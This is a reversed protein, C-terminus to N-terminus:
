FGNLVQKLKVVFHEKVQQPRRILVGMRFLDLTVHFDASEKLENWADLMDKSWRIDDLVFITNENSFPLLLRVYNKLADGQHHGDIFILDFDEARHAELFASFTANILRVNSLRFASINTQALKHTEGCADVSVVSGTPNGAALCITGIGLSTGFELMRKPRYHNSLQYLLDAYVGKSSATRYIDNVRRRTGLTKSGAGADQVEIETRDKSLKKKLSQLDRSFDAEPQIQLCCDVLDYVFPSHIGHRGKANVLYKIYESVFNM